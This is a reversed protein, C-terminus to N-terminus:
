KTKNACNNPPPPLPTYEPEGIPFLYPPVDSFSIQPGSMDPYTIATPPFEACISIDQRPWYSIYNICMEDEFSEGNGTPITRNLTTFECRVRLRDGPEVWIGPEKLFRNGQWNNDWADQSWLKAHEYWNGDRDQRLLELEHSVGAGHMHPTVHTIWVGQPFANAMIRSSCESQVVFSSIGPPIGGLPVGSYMGFTGSEVPTLTPTITFVMGWGPEEIGPTMTPHDIHGQFLFAKCANDGAGVPLGNMYYLPAQGTAWGTFYLWCALTVVPCDGQYNPDQWDPPLGNPCQFLLAHHYTAPSISYTLVESVLIHYRRDTPFSQGRCIYVDRYPPLEMPMLTVHFREVDDPLEPIQNPGDVPNFEVTFRNVAGHYQFVQSDGWAAIFRITHAGTIDNDEPKCAVM